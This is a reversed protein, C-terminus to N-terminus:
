RVFLAMRARRAEPSPRADSRAPVNIRSADQVLKRYYADAVQASLHIRGTEDVALLHLDYLTHLDARLLLGNTTDYNPEEAHPRIHAAELLAEVRCNTICCRREYAEMLRQRFGAQGRRERVQQYAIADQLRGRHEAEQELADPIATIAAVSPEYLARLKQVWENDIARISTGGRGLPGNFLESFWPENSVLASDKLWLGRDGHFSRDGAKALYIFRCRSPSTDGERALVWIVDGRKPLRATSAETVYASMREPTSPNRAAENAKQYRVFHERGKDFVNGSDPM